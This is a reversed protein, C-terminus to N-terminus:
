LPMPLCGTRHGYLKVGIGIRDGVGNEGLLLETRIIKGHQLVTQRSNPEPGLEGVTLRFTYHQGMAVGYGIPVIGYIGDECVNYCDAPIAAPDDTGDDATDILVMKCRLSRRRFQRKEKEPTPPRWRPRKAKTVTSRSLNKIPLLQSLTRQRLPSQTDITM